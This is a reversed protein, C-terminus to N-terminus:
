KELARRFRGGVPEPPLPVRIVYASLDALRERATLTVQGGRYAILGDRRLQQLTRNVHVISLGLVDAIVEQTLPMHFSPGNALGVILLREHLELLLHATRELASLRGLRMVQDVMRAEETRKLEAWRLRLPDFRPSKDALAAVLPTADVTHGQTLAITSTARPALDEFLLDGPLRLATIQRRGDAMLRQEAFYGGGVLRAGDAAAGAARLEVGAHHARTDQDLRGFPVVDDPRMAKGNALRLLLLDLPSGDPRFANFTAM